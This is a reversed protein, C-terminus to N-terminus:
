SAHGVDVILRLPDALDDVRFDLKEPVGVVWTIDAEFDCSKELEMVSPLGPLLENPEFQPAGSEDASSAPVLKVQLLANGQVELDMGSGCNTAPPEVYEVRYGPLCGSFEFVIRDFNEHEATRVDSLGCVPPAVPGAKEVPVQSGTFPEEPEGTETPTPSVAPTEAAPSPAEEEGNSCAALVVLAGVVALTLAILKLILRYTPFM